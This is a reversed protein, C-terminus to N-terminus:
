QPRYVGGGKELGLGVKETNQLKFAGKTFFNSGGKSSLAGIYNLDM